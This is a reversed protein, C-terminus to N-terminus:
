LTACLHSRRAAIPTLAGAMLVRPRGRQFRAINREGDSMLARVERADEFKKRLITPAINMRTFEFHAWWARGGSLTSSPRLSPPHGAVHRPGSCEKQDDGGDSRNAAVPDRLM